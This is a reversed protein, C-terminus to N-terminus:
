RKLQTVAEPKSGKDPKGYVKKLENMDKFVILQTAVVEGDDSIYFEAGVPIISPHITEGYRPAKTRMAHLGAEVFNHSGYLGDDDFSFKATKLEGNYYPTGRYPSVGICNDPHAEWYEKKELRKWVLIPRVSVRPIRGPRGAM